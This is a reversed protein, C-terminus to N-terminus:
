VPETYELSQGFDYSLVLDKITRFRKSEGELYIERHREYKPEHISFDGKKRKPMIRETLSIEIFKRGHLFDSEANEFIGTKATQNVNPYGSKDTCFSM